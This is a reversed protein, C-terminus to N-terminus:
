SFFPGFYKIYGNKIGSNPYINEYAERRRLYDCVWKRSFSPLIATTKEVTTKMYVVYKVTNCIISHVELVQKKKLACVGGELEIAHRDSSFGACTLNMDM